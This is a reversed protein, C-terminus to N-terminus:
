KQPWLFAFPNALVERGVERFFHRSQADGISRARVALLFSLGFSTAINLVGVFAVGTFASFTEYVTLQRAIHRADLAYGLSAASLTVHRVEFPIGFLEFLIPMTGLLFGLVIFGASGAAHHAAWDALKAARNAGIRRRIRLSNAISDSMKHLAVYNATWGTALSSLWLFVGTAAAFFITGSTHPFLMYVGHEAEAPTLFPHGVVARFIRDVLISAPVAGVLNAITVVFQTRSIAKLSVMRDKAPDEMADVLAAATAAPMKSALLFGGAQMLLFSFVYNLSHAFALLM